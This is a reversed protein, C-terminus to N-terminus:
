DIEATMTVTGADDRVWLRDNNRAITFARDVILPAHGRFAFSTPRVGDRLALNMMLMAQLPGHVVLDPYGEIDRAFARDYHIRHANFTLASFRFLFAADATLTRSMSPTPTAIDRPSAPPALPLFVLDQDEVVALAGDAVIEHHLTVFTMAGSRGLKQTIAAISTRKDLTAGVAIPAHFAIRGGAWMRRPQPIPPLFDGKAAHGDAALTARPDEPLHYLWHCLPPVQGDGRLAADDGLTVALRRLTGEDARDTSSRSRGIWSSFAGGTM